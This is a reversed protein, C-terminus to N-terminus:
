SVLVQDEARNSVLGMIKFLDNSEIVRLELKEKGM